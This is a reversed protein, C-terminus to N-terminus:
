YNSLYAKFSMAVLLLYVFFHRINILSWVNKALRTIKHCYLESPYFM